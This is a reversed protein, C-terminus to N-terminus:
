KRGVIMMIIGAVCGVMGLITTLPYKEKWWLRCFISFATVNVGILMPWTLSAMAAEKMSSLAKILLYYQLLAAASWCFLVQWVKKEFHFFKRDDHRIKQEIQSAILNGIGCFGLLCPIIINAKRTAEPLTVTSTLLIQYLGSLLLSGAVAPIWKKLDSSVTNKKGFIAIVALSVIVTLVGFANILSIKEHLFILAFLMTIMAATNRIAVSLGNHGWKMSCVLAAQSATNVFGVLATILLVNRWEIEPALSWDPLLIWAAASAVLNSLTFFQFFSIRDKAIRSVIISISSFSFGTLVTFLLATLKM